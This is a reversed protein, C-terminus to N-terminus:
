LHGSGIRQLVRQQEPSLKSLVSKKQEASLYELAVELYADACIKQIQTANLTEKLLKNEEKLRILESKEDLTEVRVVKRSRNDRGYKRLWYYITHYSGIDYQQKAETISYGRSEILDVVQQKFAESYRYQRKVEQHSM